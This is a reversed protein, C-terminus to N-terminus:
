NMRYLTGRVRSLRVKANGIFRGESPFMQWAGGRTDRAFCCTQELVCPKAKEPVEVSLVRVLKQSCATLHAVISYGLIM